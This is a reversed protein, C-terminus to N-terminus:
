SFFMRLALARQTKADVFLKHRRNTKRSPKTTVPNEGLRSNTPPSQM